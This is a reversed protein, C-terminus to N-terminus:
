EYGYYLGALGGAITAVANTDGGLDVAKTTCDKYSDTTILCWVASEISDIVYGSTRIKEESVDKFEFLHFLRGLYAM